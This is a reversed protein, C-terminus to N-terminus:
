TAPKRQTAVEGRATLMAGSAIEAILAAKLEPLELRGRGHRLAETQLEFDKAM